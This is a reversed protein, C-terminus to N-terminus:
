SMVGVMVGIILTSDISQCVIEVAIIDTKAERKLNTVEIEFRECPQKIVGVVNAM